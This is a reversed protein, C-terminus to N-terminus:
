FTQQIPSFALEEEYQEEFWTNLRASENEVDGTSESSAIVVPSSAAADESASTQAANDAPECATLAASAVAFLLLRCILLRKM